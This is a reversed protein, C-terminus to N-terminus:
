QQQPSLRVVLWRGIMTLGSLVVIFIVGLASAEGADGTEWFDWLRVAILESDHSALILPISFARMAHAAVWIWGSAFAPLVLPLTVRLLTKTKSAGSVSAAEELERSVQVIAGNMTRSGFALYSTTLGLIIVWVTGYIPLNDLPPRSYLFILAIAIVVSPIAQPLFSVVDLLGKGTMNTRVVVWAIALAIFMTLTATALTVIVTNTISAIVRSDTLVNGYSNLSTGQWAAMSPLEYSPLLSSWVLLLFPALVTFFAYIVFLSFAFYRWKNLPVVHPRYGKGTITSFRQTGARVFRRNMLILLLSIPFFCTAFASAFGYDPPYMGQASFYILTSFVFIREPLGIIIPLEFSDLSVMLSYVAGALIAPRLLPLTIRRVVLGISAGSARASEELAPDMMRFGGVVILFVTTVGRCGDLFILGPLSHINFPGTAIEIGVLSLLYRILVNIVGANPHLLYIWGMAFLIGPMAIPVLLLGWAINRMPLDTREILFAFLVGFTLSISTGGLAYVFTNWLAQYTAPSGYVTSYNVLTWDGPEIVTGSDVSALFLQFLPFIVLWVAFGVLFAVLFNQRVAYLSEKFHWVLNQGVAIM